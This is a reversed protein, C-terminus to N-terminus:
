RKRLMWVGIYAFAVVGVGVLIVPDELFRYGRERVSQAEGAIRPEVQLQAAHTKLPSVTAEGDRDELAAKKSAYQSRHADPIPAPERRVGGAIRTVNM